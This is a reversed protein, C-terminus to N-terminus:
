FLLDIFIKAAFKNYLIFYENTLLCWLALSIFFIVVSLFYLLNFFKKRKFFM